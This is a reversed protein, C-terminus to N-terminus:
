EAPKGKGPANGQILDRGAYIGGATEIEFREADSKCIDAM